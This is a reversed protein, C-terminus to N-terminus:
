QKENIYVSITEDVEDACVLEHIKYTLSNLMEMNFDHCAKRTPFLCVPSQGSEQLDNFPESLCMTIVRKNLILITEDTPFGFRVNQLM